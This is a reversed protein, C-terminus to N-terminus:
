MNQWSPDRVEEKKRRTRRKRYALIFFGFPATVITPITSELPYPTGKLNHVGYILAITLFSTFGTAVFLALGPPEIRVVINELLRILAGGCLLTYAGQKLAAIMAPWVGHDANIQWVVVAMIVAGLSGMKFNISRYLLKSVYKAYRIL